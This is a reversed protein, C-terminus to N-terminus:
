VNNSRCLMDIFLKEYLNYCYSKEFHRARETCTERSISKFARSTLIEATGKINGKKIAIGTSNDFAETAGGVKNAIVPLGCALSEINVTPFNDEETMSLFVDATSYWAALERQSSTRRIGIINPPLEKEQKENVGIM